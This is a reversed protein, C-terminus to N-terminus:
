RLGNNLVKQPDSSKYYRNIVRSESTQGLSGWVSKFASGAILDGSSGSAQELRRLVRVTVVASM